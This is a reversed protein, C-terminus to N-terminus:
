PQSGPDSRRRLRYARYAGLVVAFAVACGYFSYDPHNGPRHLLATLRAEALVDGIVVLHGFIEVLGTFYGNVKGVVLLVAMAICVISGAVLIARDGPVLRWTHFAALYLALFALGLWWNKLLDKM